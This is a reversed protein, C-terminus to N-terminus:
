FTTSDWVSTDGTEFGDLFITGAGAPVYGVVVRCARLTNNAGGLMRSRVVIAEGGQSVNYELQKQTASFGPTGSSSLQDFTLINQFGGEADFSLVAADTNNVADTDYYEYRVLVITSGAPLNVEFDFDGSPGATRYMCGGGGYAFALGSNISNMASASRSIYSVNLEPVGDAYEIPVPTRVGPLVVMEGPANQNEEIQAGIAPLAASVALLVVPWLMSRRRKM